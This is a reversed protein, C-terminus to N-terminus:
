QFLPAPHTGSRHSMWCARAESRDELAVTAGDGIQKDITASVIDSQEATVLDEATM